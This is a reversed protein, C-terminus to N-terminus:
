GAGARDRLTALILLSLGGISALTRAIHWRWWEDRLAMWNSPPTQVNWASVQSNIPQNFFRTILGAAILLAAAALLLSFVARSRRNMVACALTLLICIAGLVPMATNLAGIAHQQQAVYLTAPMDVPDYGLWIGFATGAVLSTLLLACFAVISKAM